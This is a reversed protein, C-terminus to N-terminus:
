PLAVQNTELMMWFGSYLMIRVEEEFETFLASSAVLVTVSGCAAGIAELSLLPAARKDHEFSQWRTKAAHNGHVSIHCVKVDSLLPRFIM